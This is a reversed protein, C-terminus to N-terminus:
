HSAGPSRLRSLVAWCQLDLLRGQKRPRRGRWCPSLKTFSSQEWRQVQARVPSRSHSGRPQLGPSTQVRPFRVRPQKRPSGPCARPKWSGEDGTPAPSPPLGQVQFLGARGTRPLAWRMLILVGAM